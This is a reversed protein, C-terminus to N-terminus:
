PNEMFQKASPHVLQWSPKSALHEHFRVPLGPDSDLCNVSVPFMEETSLVEGLATGCRSCFCRSYKHPAEPIYEEVLVKGELWEFSSGEVMVFESIGLKRCRSCHCIGLFKPQASLSFKVAGCCCSGLLM